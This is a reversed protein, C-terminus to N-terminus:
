NPMVKLTVRSLSALQLATLAEYERERPAWLKSCWMLLVVYKLSKQCDLGQPWPRLKVTREWLPQVKTYFPPNGIHNRSLIHFIYAWFEEPIKSTEFFFRVIQQSKCLYKQWWNIWFFHIKWKLHADTHLPFTSFQCFGWASSLFRSM